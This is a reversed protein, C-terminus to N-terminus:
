SDLTFDPQQIGPKRRRRVDMSYMWTWGFGVYLVRKIPIMTFCVFGARWVVLLAKGMENVRDLTTWCKSM